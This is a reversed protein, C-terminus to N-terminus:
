FNGFWVQRKLPKGNWLFNGKGFVVKQSGGKLFLAAVM